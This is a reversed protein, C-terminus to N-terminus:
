EHYNEIIGNHVGIINYDDSHHHHANYEATKGHTAWRTHAIGSFGKLNNVKNTKNILDQIDGKSKVIVPKNDNLRVAIGASDYGRYELKKLGIILIPKAEEEGVYGIIGCM